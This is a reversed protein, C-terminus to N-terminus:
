PTSTRQQRRRAVTVGRSANHAFVDTQKLRVVFDTVHALLEDADDGLISTDRQAGDVAVVFEPDPM